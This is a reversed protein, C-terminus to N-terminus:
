PVVRTATPLVGPLVFCKWVITRESLKVSQSQGPRTKGVNIDDFASITHLPINGM